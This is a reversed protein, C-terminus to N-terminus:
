EADAFATSQNMGAISAVAGEDGGRALPSLLALLQQEASARRYEADVDAESPANAGFHEFFNAEAARRRAEGRRQEAAAARLMWVSLAGALLRRARIAATMELLVAERRRGLARARWRRLAKVTLVRRGIADALLTQQEERRAVVCRGRWAAFARAMRSNALVRKAEAVSAKERWESLVSRLAFRRRQGDAAALLRWRSFVSGALQSRRWDDALLRARYLRLRERWRAFLLAKANRNAAATQAREYWKALCAVRLHTSHHAAARREDARRQWRGFARQLRWRRAFDAAAATEFAKRLQASPGCPVFTSDWASGENIAGDDDFATSMHSNAHRTRKHYGDRAFDDDGVREEEDWEEEEPPRNHRVHVVSFCRPVGAPPACESECGDDDSFSEDDAASLDGETPYNGGGIARHRRHRRLPRREGRAAREASIVAIRQAEEIRAAEAERASAIATFRGRWHGFLRGMLRQKSIAAADSIDRRRQLQERWHGFVIRRVLARHRTLGEAREAAAREYEQQHTPIISASASITSVNVSNHIIVNRSSVLAATVKKPGNPGRQQAATANSGGQSITTGLGVGAARARLADKNTVAVLAARPVLGNDPAKAGISNSFTSLAGSNHHISLAVASSSSVPWSQSNEKNDFFSSSDGYPALVIGSPAASLYTGDGLANASADAHSNRKRRRREEAEHSLVEEIASVARTPCLALRMLSSGGAVARREEAFARLKAATTAAKARRRWVLFLRKRRMAELAVRGASRFRVGETFVSIVESRARRANALFVLRRVAEEVTNSLWRAHSGVLRRWGGFARRLSRDHRVATLLSLRERSLSALYRVMRLFVVAILPPRQSQLLIFSASPLSGLPLPEYAAQHRGEERGHLAVTGIPASQTVDTPANSDPVLSDDASAFSAEGLAGKALSPYMTALLTRYIHRSHVGKETATVAEGAGSGASAFSNGGASGAVRAAASRSRSGPNTSANWAPSPVGRSRGRLAAGASLSRARAGTKSEKLQRTVAKAAVVTSAEIRRTTQIHEWVSRLLLLRHDGLRELAAALAAFAESPSPFSGRWMPTNHPELSHPDALVLARSSSRSRRKATGPQSSAFRESNSHPLECRLTHANASVVEAASSAAASSPPSVAMGDGGSLWSDPDVSVNAPVAAASEKEDDIRRRFGRLLAEELAFVALTAGDGSVNADQLGGDGDHRAPMYMSAVDDEPPGITTPAAFDTSAVSDMESGEELFGKEPFHDLDRSDDDNTDEEETRHSSSHYTDAHHNAFSHEGRNTHSPPPGDSDYELPGACDVLSDSFQQLSHHTFDADGERLRRSADVEVVDLPRSRAELEDTTGRAPSIVVVVKARRGGTSASAAAESADDRRRHSSSVSHRSASLSLLISSRDEATGKSSNRGGIAGGSPGRQPTTPVVAPANQSRSSHAARSLQTVNTASVLAGQRRADSSSSGITDEKAIRRQQQPATLVRQRREAAIGAYGSM